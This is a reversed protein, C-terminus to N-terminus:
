SRRWRGMPRSSIGRIAFTRVRSWSACRPSRFSRPSAYSRASGKPGPAGRRVASRLGFGLLALLLGMALLEVGRLPPADAWASRAGLLISWGDQFLAKVQPALRTAHASAMEASRLSGFRTQVNRIWWPASGVFFSSLLLGLARPSLWRRTSGVLAAVAVVAGLFVSPAHVWWALGLALGLGLLPATAPQSDGLRREVLLMLWLSLSSLVLLSAYAGDSTLGKYLFFSPGLALYLGALFGARDGFAERATAWAALVALVVLVAMAGRFSFPSAGFIAFVAALYHPELTGAYEAGYYFVPHAGRELIDEAMIAVVAQDSSFPVRGRREFVWCAVLTVLVLILVARRVPM